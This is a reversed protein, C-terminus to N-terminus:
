PKSQRPQPIAITPIGARELHQILITGSGTDEVLVLSANHTNFQGRVARFVTKIDVRGRFLDVLYFRGAHAGLAAVVSYSSRDSQSIATDVSLVIGGSMLPLREYQPFCDPTLRWASSGPQQQYLTQFDPEGRDDEIEAIDESGYADERLLSGAQREWRYGFFELTEDQEARFPLALHYWGRRALLHGSLDNAHLRHQVVVVRDHKRNDLRSLISSQFIRNVDEFKDPDRADAIDSPDDVIILNAGYGAIKSHISIARLEGGATTKFDGHRDHGQAIRTPYFQQFLPSRLVMRIKAAIDHALDESHCIILIKSAPSHALEYVALAISFTLTKLHRPPLNVILRRLKRRGLRSAALCLIEIYIDESIEVGLIQGCLGLLIRFVSAAHNIQPKAM